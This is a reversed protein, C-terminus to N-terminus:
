IIYICVICVYLIYINNIYLDYVTSIHIMYLACPDVKKQNKKVEKCTRVSSFQEGGHAGIYLICVYIYTLM